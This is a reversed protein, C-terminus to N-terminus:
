TLPFLTLSLLLITGIHIEYDSQFLEGSSLCLVRRSVDGAVTEKTSSEELFFFGNLHLHLPLGIAASATRPWKKFVFACEAFLFNKLPILRHMGMFNM